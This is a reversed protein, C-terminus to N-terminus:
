SSRMAMRREDFSIPAAISRLSRTRLTWFLRRPTDRPATVASESFDNGAFGSDGIAAVQYRSSRNGRYLDADFDLNQRLCHDFLDIPDNVIKAILRSLELTSASIWNSNSDNSDILSPANHAIFTISSKGCGAFSAEQM